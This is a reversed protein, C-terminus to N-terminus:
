AFQWLIVVGNTLPLDAGSRPVRYIGLMAAKAYRGAEVRSLTAEWELKEPRQTVMAESRLRITEGEQSLQIEGKLVIPKGDREQLELQFAGRGGEPAVTMEIQGVRGFADLLKGKWQPGRGPVQKEMSQENM